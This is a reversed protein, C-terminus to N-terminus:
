RSLKAGDELSSVLPVVSPETHRTSPVSRTLAADCSADTRARQRGKPDDISGHSLGHALTEHRGAYSATPSAGQPWGPYVSTGAARTSYWKSVAWILGDVTFTLLRATQGTEGHPTVLEHAHQHSIIAALGASSLREVRRWQRGRCARGVAIAMVREGIKLTMTDDTIHITM